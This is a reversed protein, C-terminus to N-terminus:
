LHRRDLLLRGRVADDEIALLEVGLDGPFFGKLAAASAAVTVEQNVPGGTVAACDLGEPTLDLRAADRDGELERGGRTRDGPPSRRDGQRHSRRRTAPRRGLGIPG